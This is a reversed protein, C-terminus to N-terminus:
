CFFWFNWTWYVVNTLFLWFDNWKAMAEFRLQSEFFYLRNSYLLFYCDLLHIVHLAIALWLCRSIFMYVALTIHFLDLNSWLYEGWEPETLYIEYMYMSSWFQSLLQICNDCKCHDIIYAFSEAISKNLNSYLNTNHYSIFCTYILLQKESKQYEFNLHCKYKKNSLRM